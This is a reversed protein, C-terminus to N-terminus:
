IRGQAVHAQREAELYIYGKLSDRCFCSLLQLPANGNEMVISKRTLNFIIAKESGPQLGTLRSYINFIVKCKVMWLKPDTVSPILVNQPVHEMDGRFAGMAASKGYREKLRAAIVQADEEEGILRQKDLKRYRAQDRYSQEVDAGEDAVILYSYQHPLLHLSLVTNLAMKLMKTRKMRKTTTLVLWIMLLYTEHKRNERNKGQDIM